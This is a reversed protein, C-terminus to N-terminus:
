RDEYPWGRAMYEIDAIQGAPPRDRGYLDGAQHLIRDWREITYKDVWKRRAAHGDCFGLTSSDGHNVAMPGWWQWAALDKTDSPVGMPFRGAANFNRCEATEVFCYKESPNRIQDLKAIQGPTIAETPDNLCAPMAYSVFVRTRDHKSIRITDSPCHYSKPNPAYRYLAGAMIGRIEDEDTVPPTTQTQTCVTGAQTRPTGIWGFVPGSSTRADMLCSMIRGDNDTAYMYWATALTKVNAMCNIAAAQRRARQLAPMLIAMLVAIVAIVVLLEILTFGKQRRM